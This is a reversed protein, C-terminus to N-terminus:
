DSGERNMAKLLTYVVPVALLISVSMYSGNYIASYLWASQGEPAYEAFFIAGSLLHSAFRLTGGILAGIGVAIPGGSGALGALGVLGYALPYDLIVQAPHVIFPELALDIFGYLVGALIGPKVGRYFSLFIIPVMELAVSGGQPMEFLPVFSLAAALAVSVAVYTMTRVDVASRTSDPVTEATAEPKLEELDAGVQEESM